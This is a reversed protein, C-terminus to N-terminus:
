RLTAETRRPGREPESALGCGSSAGPGGAAEFVRMSFGARQLRYVSYLGAFGAGVVVVDVDGSTMGAIM